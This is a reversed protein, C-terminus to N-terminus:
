ATATQDVPIPSRDPLSALQMEQQNPDNRVLAGEDTSYFLSSPKKITPLKVKIEDAVQMATADGSAPSIKLTLTLSGSDAHERVALVVQQLAESLEALCKGKRQQRIVNDIANVVVPPNETINM